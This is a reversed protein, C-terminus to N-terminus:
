PAACIGTSGNQRVSACAESATACVGKLPVGNGYACKAALVASKGGECSCCTPACQGPYTCSTGAPAAGVLLSPKMECGSASEWATGAGDSQLDLQGQYCHGLVDTTTERVCPRGSHCDADSLCREPICISSKGPLAGTNCTVDGTESAPTPCIGNAPCAPAM